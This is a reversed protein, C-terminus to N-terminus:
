AELTRAPARAATADSGGRMPEGAAVRLLTEFAVPVVGLAAFAARRARAHAVGFSLLAALARHARSLRRWAADYRELPEGAAITSALAQAGLLGLTIGEGTVADTYGAADGVLAVAGAHRARARQWFPGAGRSESVAEARALRAALMPFRALRETYSGGDDRGLLAVGVEDAAVPTVYAEAAEGWHVEVYESWPASRFHRRM